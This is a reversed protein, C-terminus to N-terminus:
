LICPQGPKRENEAYVIDSEAKMCIGNARVCCVHLGFVVCGSKRIAPGRSLMVPFYFSFVHLLLWTRDYAFFIPGCKVRVSKKINRKTRQRKRRDAMLHCSHDQQFASLSFLCLGNEALRQRDSQGSPYQTELHPQNKQTFPIHQQWVCCRERM